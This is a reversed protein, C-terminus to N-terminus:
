FTMEFNVHFLDGNGGVPYPVATYGVPCDNLHIREANLRLGREKVVYWNFGARVESADGYRGRIESGSLYVQLAKPVLMASTQVQYGHDDIDAIGGTNAGEFDSLWRWYYEAELSLGKYKIGGDVSAM